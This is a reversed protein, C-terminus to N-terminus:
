DGYRRLVRDQTQSGHEKKSRRCPPCRRPATVEGDFTRFYHEQEGKTFTFTNGCEICSCARDEYVERFSVAVIGMPLASLTEWALADWEENTFLNRPLTKLPSGIKLLRKQISRTASEEWNRNPMLSRILSIQGPMLAVQDIKMLDRVYDPDSLDAKKASATAPRGIDTLPVYGSPIASVEPVVAKPKVASKQPPKEEVEVEIPNLVVSPDCKVYYSGDKEEVVGVSYAGEAIALRYSNSSPKGDQRHFDKYKEMERGIAWLSPYPGEKLGKVNTILLDRIIAKRPKPAEVTDEVYEYEGGGAPRKWTTGITNIIFGKAALQPLIQRCDEEPIGVLDSMASVLPDVDIREGEKLGNEIFSIAAKGYKEWLQDSTLGVETEQEVVAERVPEPAPAPKSTQNESELFGLKKLEAEAYNETECEVVPVYRKGVVIDKFNDNSALRRLVIILDVDPKERFSRREEPSIMEVIEVLGKLKKKVKQVHRNYVGFIIARPPRKM